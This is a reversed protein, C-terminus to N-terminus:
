FMPFLSFFSSLTIHIPSISSPLTPFSLSFTLIPFNLKSYNLPRSDIFGCEMYQHYTMVKVNSHFREDWNFSSKAHKHTRILHYPFELFRIPLFSWFSIFSLHIFILLFHNWNISRNIIYYLLLITCYLCYISSFIPTLTIECIPIMYYSADKYPVFLSFRKTRDDLIFLLWITQFICSAISHLKLHSVM